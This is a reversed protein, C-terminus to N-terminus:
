AIINRYAEQLLIEKKELSLDLPLQALGMIRRMVEVGIFQHCLRWDFHPGSRYTSKMRDVETNATESMILHAMFIGLDFEPCGIFSFEPDIVAVGTATKLWSGPYYDGHLLVTGPSLYIDGLARVHRILTADTKYPLSIEQLGPQIADLDFGNEQMFPYYFLHEHNLKRLALNEPFTKLRDSPIQHLEGLYRTLQDLENQDLSYGNRYVYTFDTATGVDELVVVHNVTDMGLFAPMTAAIVDTDKITKYFESEVFAREVPAAIQPYKQVFPNAQKLILSSKRTVVRTVFNM